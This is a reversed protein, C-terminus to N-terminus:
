LFFFLFFFFRYLGPLIHIKIRRKNNDPVMDVAEQVTLVDGKGNQDVVIVRSGNNSDRDTRAGSINSFGDIKLDDWTIFKTVDDDSGKNESLGM